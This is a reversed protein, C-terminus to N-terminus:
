TSSTAETWVTYGTATSLQAKQEDYSAKLRDYEEPSGFHMRCYTIVALQAIEDLEAPLVVGAIGLDQKAAAILLDIEDDYASTVVRLAMKVKERM